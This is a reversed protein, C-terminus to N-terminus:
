SRRRTLGLVLLATGVALLASSVVLSLAATAGTTPVRSVGGTPSPTACDPAITITEAQTATLPPSTSDVLHAIFNFTGATTPTGTTAGASSISLGPPLTASASWKYPGTGGQATLTAASYAHCEAGPPLATCDIQVTGVINTNWGSFTNCITTANSGDKVVNVGIGDRDPVDPATRGVQNFSITNRVSFASVSIGDDTGAGTINNHTITVDHAASVAVATGAVNQVADGSGFITSSSTTGSALDLYALGNQGIIGVLPAPPGITSNSVNVDLLGSAEIGSKQYGSVTTNSINVPPQFVGASAVIASGVQCGSNETIGLVTVNSVSGFAAAFLIGDLTARGCAPPSVFGTGKITLNQVHMEEFQIPAPNTLVAGNFSGPTTDHATITHGAGDVTFGNPVTLPATTDCDATLTFTTGSTTGACASTILPDGHNATFTSSLFRPAGGPKPLRDANGTGTAALSGNPALLAAVATALVLFQRGRARRSRHENVQV